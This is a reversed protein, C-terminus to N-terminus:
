LTTRSIFMLRKFEDCEEPTMRADQAAGCLQDYFYQPVCNNKRRIMNPLNPKLYRAFRDGYRPDTLIEELREALAERAMEIRDLDTM